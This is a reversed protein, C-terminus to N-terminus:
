WCLENYLIIFCRIYSGEDQTVLRKGLDHMLDHCKLLKMRKEASYFAHRKLIKTVSEKHQLFLVLYLEQRWMPFCYMVLFVQVLFFVHIIQMFFLQLGFPQMTRSTVGTILILSSSVEHKIKKNSIYFLFHM